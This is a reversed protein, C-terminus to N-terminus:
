KGREFYINGPLIRDVKYNSVGRIRIKVMADTGAWSADSTKVVVTYDSLLYIPSQGTLILSGFLVKGRM